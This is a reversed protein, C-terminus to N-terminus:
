ILKNDKQYRELAYEAVMLGCNLGMSNDYGTFSGPSNVECILYNKGDHLIDFRSLEIKGIVPITRTVLEKIESTIEYANRNCNARLNSIFFDMEENATRQQAYLSNNGFTLVSIVGKSRHDIWEQLMAFKTKPYIENIKIFSEMVQDIDHCKYVSDARSGCISKVIIPFELGITQMSSHVDDKTVYLSTLGSKPIPIGARLLEKYQIWKNICLLQSRTNNLVITGHNSLANLISIEVPDWLMCRVVVINPIENRKMRSIYNETKLDDLRVIKCEVGLQIFGQKIKIAEYFNSDKEAKLDSIDLNNSQEETLKRTIVWAKTVNL